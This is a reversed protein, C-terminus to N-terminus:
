FQTGIPLRGIELHPKGSMKSGLDQRTCTGSATGQKVVVHSIPLGLVSARRHVYTHIWSVMASAAASYVFLFTCSGEMPRVSKPATTEDIRGTM